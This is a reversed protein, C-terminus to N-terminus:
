GDEVSVAGDRAIRVAVAHGGRVLRVRAEDNALGLPDFILRANSTGADVSAQAQGGVALDVATGADWAATQLTRAQLPEWAGDVRREFYYGAPGVVVAVSSGTIIAEDRAAQTRAAFREAERRLETDGGPLSLMAVGALLAMMFLVVLMEILSFGNRPPMAVTSPTAAPPHAPM